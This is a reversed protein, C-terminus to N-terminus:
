PYDFGGDNINCRKLRLIGKKLGKILGYKEISMIMYFSCSPEFRCKNRVSSPAYRQYIKILCLIIRKSFLLVFAFFLLLVVFLSMKSSLLTSSIIFYLGVFFVATFLVAFVIRVWKIEPRKLIRNYLISRPDNEDDFLMSGIAQTNKLEEETFIVSKM